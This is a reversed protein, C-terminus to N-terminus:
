NVAPRQLSKQEEKAQKLFAANPDAYAWLGVFHQYADKAADQQGEAALSRGLGLWSLATAASTPDFEPHALVNRYEKEAAAFQRDALLTDARFKQIELGRKELPRATELAAIADGPRHEAAALAAEVRPGWYLNLLTGDPSQEHM